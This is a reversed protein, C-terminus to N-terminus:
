LVVGLRCSACDGVRGEACDRGFGGFGDLCSRSSIYVNGLMRVNLRMMAAGTTPYRTMWSECAHAVPKSAYAPMVSRSSPQIARFHFLCVTTPVTMSGIASLARMVMRVTQKATLPANGTQNATMIRPLSTASPMEAM